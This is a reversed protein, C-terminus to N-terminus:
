NVLGPLGREDVADMRCLAWMFANEFCLHFSAFDSIILDTEPRCSRAVFAFVVDDVQFVGETDSKNGNGDNHIHRGTKSLAAM